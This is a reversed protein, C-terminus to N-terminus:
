ADRVQEGDRFLYRKIKRTTTKPLEEKRVKIIKVRKYDALSRCCDGVADRVRGEVFADTLPVGARKAEGELYEYDPFIVAGVVERGSAEDRMPMVAAEAIEPVAGLEVEVEEPYVNKGAPTVIVNKIRGTIYLYGERDLWGADGSYFWGDRLVSATMAPDGYYGVMVNDGAVAVEGVGEANPEHIRVRVGPVTLGSSAFKIRRPVNVSVVPATETLGYGQLLNLGLYYFTRSVEAKLPAAGSIFMRITDLGAKRRLGAFLFRGLNVGTVVHFARTLAMFIKFLGRTLPPADRVARRLGALMKEYLLPVGCMMTVGADRIDEIIEKSKFSRAYTIAAGGAIPILMGATAEFTHHLPLLSLFVDNEDFYLAQYVQDVNAGLNRHTLMVAKSAGTTGSTFLLVALDDLRVARGMFDERAAADEGGALTEAWGRVGGEGAEGMSIIERLGELKGKLGAFVALSSPASVVVEVGARAMIAGLEKEKLLPDLPVCAAGGGTVALYAVAWEYRNEGIVAVRTGPVVGMRGLAAGLRVVDDFLREYTIRSFEGSPLRRQAFVREGFKERARSVLDRVTFVGIGPRIGETM